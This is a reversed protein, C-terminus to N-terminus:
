QSRSARLRWMLSHLEPRPEGSHVYVHRKEQESNLSCRGLNCLKIHCDSCRPGLSGRHCASPTGPGPDEALDNVSVTTLFARDFSLDDVLLVDKSLRKSQGMRGQFSRIWRSAGLRTPGWVYGRWTHGHEGAYTLLLERGVDSTARLRPTKVVRSVARTASASWALAASGRPVLSVVRRKASGVQLPAQAPAEAAAQPASTLVDLMQPSMFKPTEGVASYPPVMHLDQLGTRARIGWSRHAGQTRLCRACRVFVHSPM